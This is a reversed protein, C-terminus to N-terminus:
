KCAHAGIGPTSITTTAPTVPANSSICNAQIEQHIRVQMTNVWGTQGVAEVRHFGNRTELINLPLSLATTPVTRKPSQRSAEQYLELEKRDAPTVAVILKQAHSVTAFLLLLALGWHKSRM